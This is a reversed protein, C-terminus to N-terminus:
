GGAGHHVIFWILWWGYLTAIVGVGFLVNDVTRLLRESPKFDLFIGRLGLLAHSVVIILFSSELLTIWPNSLYSVVDTYTLLGHEAVLHNVVLHIMLIVVLLAGTVLKALWLWVTENAKRQAIM